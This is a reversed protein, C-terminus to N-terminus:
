HREIITTYGLITLDGHQNKYERKVKYINMAKKTQVDVIETSVTIEDGIRIKKIYEYTQEGYLVKKLNLGLMQGYSVQGGWLDIVTAITPPMQEGTEYSPHNDGIAAALEKVKGKEVTFTFQHFTEGVRGTKLEVM